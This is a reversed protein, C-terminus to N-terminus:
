KHSIDMQSSAMSLPPNWPNFYTVPLLQTCWQWTLSGFSALGVLSSHCQLSFLHWAFVPKWWIHGTNCEKRWNIQVYKYIYIYTHTHTDIDMLPVLMLAKNTKWSRFVYDLSRHGAHCSVMERDSISFSTEQQQGEGLWKPLVSVISNDTGHQNTSKKVNWTRRKLGVQRILHTRPPDGVVSQCWSDCKPPGHCLQFWSLPQPITFRTCHCGLSVLQSSNCNFGGWVLWNPASFVVFEPHNIM